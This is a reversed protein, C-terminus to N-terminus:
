LGFVRVPLVVDSGIRTTTLPWSRDTTAVYCKRINETSYHRSYRPYIRGLLEIEPLSAARQGEELKLPPALSSIKSYIQGRCGTQQGISWVCHLPINPEPPIGKQFSERTPNCQSIPLLSKSLCKDTNKVCTCIYFHGAVSFGLLFLGRATPPM